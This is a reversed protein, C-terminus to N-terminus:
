KIRSLDAKLRARRAALDAELDALHEHSGHANKQMDMWATLTRIEARGAEDESAPASLDAQRMAESFFDAIAADIISGLPVKFHAALARIKIDTAPDLDRFRHIRSTRKHGDPSRIRRGRLNM